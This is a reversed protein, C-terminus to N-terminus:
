ENDDGLNLSKKVTSKEEYEFSLNSGLEKDKDDDIKIKNKKCKNKNLTVEPVVNDHSLCEERFSYFGIFDYIDIVTKYEDEDGDLLFLGDIIKSNEIYILTANDKGGLWNTVHISRQIFDSVGPSNNYIKELNDNGINSLGDSTIFLDDGTIIKAIDINFDEEMGIYKTLGNRLKLEDNINIGPTSNLFNKVDDDKTLQILNGDVCTYIRSDGINSLYYENKKKSIVISLTSGGNGKLKEFVKKNAILISESIADYIDIEDVLRNFSCLFECITMSAALGGDQMGGMGDCLIYCFIYQKIKKSYLRAAIARDENDKRVLGITTALTAEVLDATAIRNNKINKDLRKLIMKNM